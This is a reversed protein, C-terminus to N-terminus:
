DLKKWCSISLAAATSCSMIKVKARTDIQVIYEKGNSCAVSWYAANDSDDGMYFTDTARCSKGNASLNRGLEKAVEADSMMLLMSNADNEAATVTSAFLILAATTWKKM